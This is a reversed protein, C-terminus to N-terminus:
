KTEAKTKKLILPVLGIILCIAGVALVVPAIGRFLMMIAAAAVLVVGATLFQQSTKSMDAMGDEKFKTLQLILSIATRKL